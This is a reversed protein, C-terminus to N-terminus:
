TLLTTPVIFKDEQLKIEPLSKKDIKGSVTVPLKKMIVVHNPIMYFPLMTALKLKISNETNKSTEVYSCLALIGNVEKLQTISNTVGPINRIDNNIETLEIRHGRFKVQSDQRGIFNIYGKPSWFGNDGTRYFTQNNLKKITVFSASTKEPNKLYGTSVSAGAICLEGPIGVPLLNNFQNLIYLNNNKLPYGIPVIDSENESYIYKFFTSCITAESPGYGNIIEINPNLKYYKNLTGNKIAEVGVSLKNIYFNRNNELVFDAIDDLINPPLFSFTIHNSWFIM